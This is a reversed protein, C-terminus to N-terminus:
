SSPRKSTSLTLSMGPFNKFFYFNYCVLSFLAHRTEFRPGRVGTDCPNRGGGWPNPGGPALDRPIEGGRFNLSKAGEGGGGM